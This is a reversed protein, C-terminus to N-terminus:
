ILAEKYKKLQFDENFYPSRIALIRPNRRKSDATALMGFKLASEVAIRDVLRNQKPFINIYPYDHFRSTAMRCLNSKSKTYLRGTVNKEILFSGSDEAGWYLAQIAPAFVVALVPRGENILAINVTFKGNMAWFDKTGDLPDVLWCKKRMSICTM